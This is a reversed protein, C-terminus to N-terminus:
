EEDEEKRDNKKYLALLGVAALNLVLLIWGIASHGLWAAIASLIGDAALVAPVIGAGPSLLVAAGALIMFGPILLYWPFSSKTEAKPDTGPAEPPVTFTVSGAPTESPAASEKVAAPDATEGGTGPNGSPVATGNASSYSTGSNTGQPKNNSGSPATGATSYSPAVCAKKSEDWYWGAPYGADQCTVVVSPAPSAAEADSSDPKGAPEPEPEASPTPTPPTPTPDEKSTIIYPDFEAPPEEGPALLLIKMYRETVGEQIAGDHLNEIDTKRVGADMVYFRLGSELLLEQEGPYLSVYQIYTGAHIKKPLYIEFVVSEPTNKAYGHAVGHSLSTSIMPACVFTQGILDTMGKVTNDETMTYDSIQPAGSYLVLNENMRGRALQDDLNSNMHRFPEIYRGYTLSPYVSNELWSEDGAELYRLGTLPQFGSGSYTIISPNDKKRLAIPNAEQFAKEWEALNEHTLRFYTNEESPDPKYEGDTVTVDLYFYDTGVAAIVTTTGESVGTVIGSSLGVSAIHPDSSTFLVPLLAGRIEYGFTEGAALTIADANVDPIQSFCGVDNEEAWAIVTPNEHETILAIGTASNPNQQPLWDTGFAKEKITQVADPVIFTKPVFTSDRLFSLAYDEIVEVGDPIVITDSAAVPDAAILTKRDESLLLGNEYIVGHEPFIVMSWDRGFATPCIKRITEPLRIEFPQCNTPFVFDGIETVGGRLEVSQLGMDNM